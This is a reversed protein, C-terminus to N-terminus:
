FQFGVGAAAGTAGGGSTLGVKFSAMEGQIQFGVAFASEGDFSGVGISIGRGNIAPMGALAMSAAVGARVVELSDSLEGIMNRNDMIGAANSGIRGANDAISMTNMGIVGEAATIRGSNMGISETNAAINTANTVIMGRNEGIMTRNTAIDATNTAINTTNTAINATNVAVAGGEGTLGAVSAAVHEATTKASNAAGYTDAIAEVLAGGDDGDVKFLENLLAAAPSDGGGVLENYTDLEAQAEDLAKRAATVQRASSDPDAISANIQSILQSYFTGPNGFANLVGNTAAERAAATTRLEEEADDRDLTKNQLASYATELSKFENEDPTNVNDAVIETDDAILNEWQRELHAM